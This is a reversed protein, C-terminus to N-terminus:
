SNRGYILEPDTIKDYYESKLHHHRVIKKHNRVTTNMLYNWHMYYSTFCQPEIIEDVYTDYRERWTFVLNKKKLVDVTDLMNDTLCTYFRYIGKHEGYRIAYDVVNGVKNKYISTLKRSVILDLVQCKQEIIERMFCVSLIKDNEFNAFARYYEDTKLYYIIKSFSDSRHDESIMANEFFNDLSNLDQALLQRIM